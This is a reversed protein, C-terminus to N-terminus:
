ASSADASGPGVVSRAFVHVPKDSNVTCKQWPACNGRFDGLIGFLKNPRNTLHRIDAIPAFRVNPLGTGLRAAHQVTLLHLLRGLASANQSIAINARAGATACGARGLWSAPPM